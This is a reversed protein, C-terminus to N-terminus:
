VGDVQRMSWSHFRERYRAATWSNVEDVTDLAWDHPAYPRPGYEPTFSSESCGAARQATWIAEWAADFAAVEEPHHRPDVQPRCEDGVRAHVHFVHGALAALASGLAVDGESLAVACGVTFHSYDAVLRLAPFEAALRALLWANSTLRGRHTEHVLRGAFGTAAAAKEALTLYEAAQEFTWSDHGSHAVAFPTSLRLSAAIRLSEELAAAHRAPSDSWVATTVASPPFPSWGHWVPGSSFVIPLWALGHRGLLGSFSGKGEDLQLALRLSCEVGVYGDAAAREVASALSHRGGDAAVVGWLSKYACLRM